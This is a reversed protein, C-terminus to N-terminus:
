GDGPLAPLGVARPGGAAAVARQGGLGRLVGVLLGAWLALAPLVRPRGPGTTVPEAHDPALGAVVERVFREIEDAAGGAGGLVVSAM